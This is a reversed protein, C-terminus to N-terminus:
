NEHTVDDAVGNSLNDFGTPVEAFQPAAFVHAFSLFAAGIFYRM